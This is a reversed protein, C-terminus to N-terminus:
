KKKAAKKPKAAAKGGLAALQGEYKKVQAVIEKVKADTAPNKARAGMLDYVRSGLDWLAKQIKTKLEVIKYQRKGEETLEGAKEGVVKAGEKVLALGEKLGKELDKKIADWDWTAM